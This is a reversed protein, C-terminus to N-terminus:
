KTQKSRGNRENGEFNCENEKNNRMTQRFVFSNKMAKKRMKKKYSKKTKMPTRNKSCGEFLKFKM